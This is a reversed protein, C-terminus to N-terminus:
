MEERTSRYDADYQKVYLIEDPTLGYLPGIFDDIEDVLPKLESMGQLEGLAGAKPNFRARMQSWLRDTLSRIQDTQTDLLEIDPFPFADIDGWNLDRENEFVMWFLYFLSSQLILFAMEKEIQSNFYMPQFDQPKNDSYLDELYPNIWYRPHRSRWVIYETQNDRSYVDYFIRNSHDKLKLLIARITPNGIKPLSYDEGSGLRNGLLLGNTSEYTINKLQESRSNKTLRIFNSTFIDFNEQTTPYGALDSRQGTVIAVRPESSEFIRAPRIAFCAVKIGKIKKRFLDRVTSATSQYVFRLTLVNGFYGGNKLIQLEREIFQASVDNVNSTIYGATFKKEIEKLLDGYPPNGIVIDFKVCPRGGEVVAAEPFEIIWHFPKYSLDPIETLAEIDGKLPRRELEIIYGSLLLSRLDDIYRQIETDELRASKAHTRFGMENLQARESDSFSTNDRKKVKINRIKQYSSFLGDFKEISDVTDKFYHNLSELFIKNLEPSLREIEQTLQRRSILGQKYRERVEIIRNFDINFSGFMAQGESRAPLGILSNGKIINIDINPLEGFSPQWGEEVVKLWVRLKAIEVAIPNIDVGYISNLALEKKSKYINEAPVESTTLGRLLSMRIRHIEGLVATLFHGSGCAPDVIRLKGLLDYIEHLAAPDNFYGEKKEINQLIQNLDYRLLVNRAAEENIENTVLIRSFVNVVINYIKPDVVQQTVIYIVDSPTYYAGEARQEDSVGSSSLHNITMEFVHGLVSPDLYSSGNEQSLRHGEVLDKVVLQLIKDDVDFERERIDPSFLSGNLFPVNDFWSGQHISLRRQVPTNFLNFFIPELQSKYLSGAINGIESKIHQYEDLRQLLFNQELVGRDELFKIFLLRNVLKIAFRKKEFDSTGEPALIDSVLTTDYHFEQTRSEGFLLEVYLNYFQSITRKKRESIQIPAEQTLKINLKEIRFTEFFDQCKKDVDIGSIGTQTIYNKNRAIQLLEQRFDIEIIKDFDLYDGGLEIRLIVWSIGDTAIGYEADGSAGRSDLYGKIDEEASEINNIPKDEGIVPTKLNKIIFDPFGKGRGYAENEYVLGVADLIKRILHQRTWAEPQSGIVSSKLQINGKLLDELEHANVHSHLEDVFTDLVTKVETVSVM